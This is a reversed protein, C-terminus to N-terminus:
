DFQRYFLIRTRHPKPYNQNQTDRDVPDRWVLAVARAGLQPPTQSVSGGGMFAPEVRVFVLYLQQKAAFCDHWFGYLFKRDCNYIKHQWDNELLKTDKDDRFILYENADTRDRDYWGLDAWVDEWSAGNSQRMDDMFVGALQELDEWEILVGKNDSSYANWAHNANFGKATDTNSIKVGGNLPEESAVRWEHPTNAFAAMLVNTSDSYPNIKFGSGESTIGLSEFGDGICNCHNGYRGFPDYTRWMYAYNVESGSAAYTTSNGVGALNGRVGGGNFGDDRLRPINALEYVSQMYGQDSVSMFIDGDKNPDAAGKGNSNEQGWSGENLASTYEFWQEPAYNFRPDHMMVAKPTIQIDKPQSLAKIEGVSLKFSVGTNFRMIPMKGGGFDNAAMEWAVDDMMGNYKDDFGWAPALDVWKKGMIQDNHKVCAWIALNLSVDRGDLSGQNITLVRGNADLVQFASVATDPKDLDPPDQPDVGGTWPDQSTRDTLDTQEWEYTVTLLPLSDFKSAVDGPATEFTLLKEYKTFGDGGGFNSSSVTKSSTFPLVIVGNEIETKVGCKDMAPAGNDYAYQLQKVPTNYGGLRLGPTGTMFFMALKGEVEFQDNLGENHRFPYAVLVSAGPMSGFFSDSKIKYVCTRKAKRTTGAPKEGGPYEDNGGNDPNKVEEIELRAGELEPQLGCIMPVRETTPISLSVPVKNEDLYDYLAALSCEPMSNELRTKFNGSISNAADIYSLPNAQSLQAETFPQEVALDCVSNTSPFWGDTVFTMRGILEKGEESAAAGNYFDRLSSGKKAYDYFYGKIDGFSRSGMALNWDALSILPVNGSYQSIFSDWSSGQSGSQDHTANEFLYSLSIRGSPSSNRPVDAALANIDFYDSVDIACFAYRGADFPLTHWTAANSHRSYYRAENVLPPPIYALGELSLTSVTENQPILCQEARSYMTNTNGIYVRGMWVNANVPDRCIIPSRSFREGPEIDERYQRRTLESGQYSLNQPANLNNGNMWVGPHPFNGVAADIEDIAEAMAAKVLMRSSIVRRLYSSPLRSTRMYASFAVASIVMFALMGLVILLASGKRQTAMKM